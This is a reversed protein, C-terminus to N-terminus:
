ARPGSRGAAEGQAGVLREARLNGGTLDLHKGSGFHEIEYNDIAVGLADDDPVHYRALNAAMRAIRDQEARASVAIDEIEGRVGLAAVNGGGIASVLTARQKSVRTVRLDMGGADRDGTLVLGFEGQHAFRKAVVPANPHRLSLLIAAFRRMFNGFLRAIIVELAFIGAVAVECRAVDRRSACLLRAVFPAAHTRASEANIEIEAVRDLAEALGDDLFAVAVEELHILVDGTLVGVLTRHADVRRHM